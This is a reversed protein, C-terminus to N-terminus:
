EASRLTRDFFSAASRYARLWSEHLLFGHVTRAAGCASATPTFTRESPPVARRRPRGQVRQGRPGYELAERFELGYGIGGRYNVALVVYGQSALYQNLSYANHYYGESPCGAPPVFDVLRGPCRRGGTSRVSRAGRHFGTSLGNEPEGSGSGASSNPSASTIPYPLFNRVCARLEVQYLLPSKIRSNLTRIGGPRSESDGDFHGQAGTFPSKPPTKKNPGLPARTSLHM